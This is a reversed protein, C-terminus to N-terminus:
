SESGDNLVVYQGLVALYSSNASHDGVDPGHFPMQLYRSPSVQGLFPSLPGALQYCSELTM